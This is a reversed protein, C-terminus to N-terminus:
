SKLAEAAEKDRPGFDVPFTKIWEGERGEVNSNAWWEERYKGEFGWEEFVSVIRADWQSDIGCERMLMDACYLMRWCANLYEKLYAMDEFFDVTMAPYRTIPGTKSYLPDAPKLKSAWFRMHLENEAQGGRQLQYVIKKQFLEMRTYKNDELLKPTNGVINLFIYFFLAIDITPSWGFNFSQGFSFLAAPNCSPHKALMLLPALENETLLIKIVDAYEEARGYADNPTLTKPVHKLWSEISQTTPNIPDMDPSGTRPRNNLLTDSFVKGKTM